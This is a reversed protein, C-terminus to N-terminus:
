YVNAETVSQLQGVWKEVPLCQENTQQSVAPGQPIGLIFSLSSRTQLKNLFTWKASKQSAFNSDLVTM